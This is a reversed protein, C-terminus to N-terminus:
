AKERSPFEVGLGCVLGSPFRDIAEGEPGSSIRWIAVDPYLCAVLLSCLSFIKPGLPFIVPSSSRTLRHMFSELLVFCDAPRHVPFILQHASPIGELLLRNSRRVADTYKPIPSDPVFAWVRAAQIHEAAGLAKDREYGLGLIAVPPQEPEVTWGSFSSLVPGCHRNPSLQAPPPSFEALSYLFDVRVAEDWNLKRFRDVLIALRTRNISSIDVCVRQKGSGSRRLRSLVNDLWESFGDDTIEEVVYGTASFWEYNEAYHHVKRDPFACAVKMLAQIGLDEAVSRARREYGVAAIFADYRIGGSPRRWAKITPVRNM